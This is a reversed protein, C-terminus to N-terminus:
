MNAQPSVSLYPALASRLPVQLAASSLFPIPSPLYLPRETSNSRKRFGEPPILCFRLNLTTNCVHFRTELGFTNSDAEFQQRSQAVNANQALKQLQCYVPLGKSTPVESFLQFVCVSMQAM